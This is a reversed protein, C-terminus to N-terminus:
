RTITRRRVLEDLRAAAAIEMAPETAWACLGARRAAELVRSHGFVIPFSRDRALAGALAAEGTPSLAATGKWAQPTSAVLVILPGDPSAGPAAVDWGRDLLTARFGEGFPPRAPEERDDWLTAVTVSASRTLWEPPPGGVPVVCAAAIAEPSPEDTGSEPAPPGPAPPFRDLVRRGRSLAERVRDAIGPDRDAVTEVARVASPLDPPYLLLDCGARLAEVAPNAGTGGVGSLNLADTLVLGDFRLERRLLDRLIGPDLTAPGPGGLSPYAVHATMVCAVESAVARFPHLDAQLADRDAAVLPLEAHSDATTRGHGPFHKACAAVGAAQCSEIWGSGLKAVVAPDESFARTGVIPNRPEVDLDLVPALALNLGLARAEVATRRAAARTASLPEPHRALAAPPPFTTMGLLQQGAGRELDAALWLPGDAAALIEEALRAAADAGAGFLLFGGVDLELARDIRRRVEGVPDTDLRLAELFLRGTGETRATANM